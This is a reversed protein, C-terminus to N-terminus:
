RREERAIAKIIMKGLKNIEGQSTGIPPNVYVSYQNITSSRGAKQLNSNSTIQGTAGATFLEPGKEGVLYTKGGSVPGGVARAGAIPTNRIAAVNSLGAALAAAAFIQPIPPPYPAALANNVSEYTKITANVIAGAKAIAALKENKQGAIQLNSFFDDTAIKKNTILEQQKISKIKEAADTESKAKQAEKAEVQALEERGLDGSKIYYAEQLEILSDYGRERIDKESLLLSEIIANRENWSDVVREKEGATQKQIAELQKLGTQQQKQLKAAQAEQELKDKNIIGQAIIEQELVEKNNIVDIQAQVAAKKAELGALDDGSYLSTQSNLFALTDVLRTLEDTGGIAGTIGALAGSIANLASTTGTGVGTTKAFSELLEDWRQGLLDTAGALGAGEAKGAGGVQGELSNLIMEQAQAVNGTEVLNQIVNKQSDTFSVGSRRLSNLGTVPDELAKGLQLSANKVDTGMVAALDQSLEVTRTFTDGSISKFTQLVNIAQTVGAVSALTNEAVENALDALENTTLGAAGSTAKFLAETRLLRKELESFQGVSLAAIAGLGSIALGATTAVVGVSSFGSALVSIRSSVGGMPGQLASASNAAQRFAGSMKKNSFVADNAARKQEKGFKVTKATTRELEKKFQSSEVTMKTVLEALVSKAM